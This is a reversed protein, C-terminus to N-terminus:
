RMSSTERRSGGKAERVIQIFKEANATIHAYDKAAMLM